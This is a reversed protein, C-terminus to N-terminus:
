LIGGRPGFTPVMKIFIDADTDNPFKQKLAHIITARGNEIMEFGRAWKEEESLMMHQQRQLKKIEATTDQM